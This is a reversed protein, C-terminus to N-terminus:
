SPNRRSAVTRHSLLIGALILVGGVPENWTLTEKLILVGLIVGVAPVLYSVTAARSAGWASIVNNNWIYALGTGMLGLALMSAIVASDVHVTAFGGLFPALALGIVAASTVQGAAITINDYPQNRLLFKSLVFGIAFCINAVLLAVQALMMSGNGPQAFADWPSIVLTLGVVAVLVGLGRTRTLKEDPFAIVAILLTAVPMTANHISLISSPVFQGAWAYLLFPVVCLFVSSLAFSAWVHRGRPWSRRTVVMVSNLFISGLTIRGVAVQTATLGDLSVKIFLYSSGWLLALGIFQVAVRAESASSNAQGRFRDTEKV